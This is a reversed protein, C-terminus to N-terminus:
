QGLLRDGKSWPIAGIHHPASRGGLEPVGVALDTALPELAHTRHQQLNQVAVPRGAGAVRQRLRAQHIGEMCGIPAPAHQRLLRQLRQQLLFLLSLTAAFRHQGRNRRDHTVQSVFELSLKSPGKESAECSWGM